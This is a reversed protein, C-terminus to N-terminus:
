RRDWTTVLKHELAIQTRVHLWSHKKFTVILFDTIVLNWLSAEFAAQLSM